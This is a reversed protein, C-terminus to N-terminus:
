FKVGQDGPLIGVQTAVLTYPLGNCPSATGGLCDATQAYNQGGVPYTNWPLGQSANNLGTAYEFQFSFNATGLAPVNSAIKLSSQLPCANQSNDTPAPGQNSGCVASPYGDKLNYSKFVPGSGYNGGSSVIVSGYEGLSNLASLATANPFTLYVDEPSNGTNQYSETVSQATGPMFPNAFQLTGNVPGSTTTIQITGITGQVAALPTTDNFYAGTAGSAVFATGGLLAISAVLALMKTNFIGRM